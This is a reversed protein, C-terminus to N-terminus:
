LRSYAIFPGGGGQRFGPASRKGFGVYHQSGAQREKRGGGVLRRGRRSHDTGMRWSFPKRRSQLPANRQLRVPLDFDTLIKTYAHEDRISGGSAPPLRLLNPKGGPIARGSETKLRKCNTADASCENM